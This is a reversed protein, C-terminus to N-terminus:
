TAQSPGGRTLWLPAGCYETTIILQWPTDLGPCTIMYVLRIEVFHVCTLDFKREKLQKSINVSIEM